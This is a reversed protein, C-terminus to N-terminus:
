SASKLEQDVVAVQRSRWDRRLTVLIAMIMRLRNRQKMVGMMMRQNTLVGSNRQIRRGYTINLGNKWRKGQGKKMTTIMKM